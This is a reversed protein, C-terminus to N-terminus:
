PARVEVVRRGRYIGADDFRHAVRVVGRSPCRSCSRLPHEYVLDFARGARAVVRPEELPPYAELKERRAMVRFHRDRTLAGSDIQDPGAPRVLRGKADLACPEASNSARLPFCVTGFQVSGRAIRGALYGADDTFRRAFALAAPRAGNERMVRELAEAPEARELATRLRDML